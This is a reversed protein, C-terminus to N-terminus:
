TKIVVSWMPLTLENNIAVTSYLYKKLASRDDYM